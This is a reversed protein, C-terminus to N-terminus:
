VRATRGRRAPRKPTRPRRGRERQEQMRAEFGDLDVDRGREGAIERTLDIPFGLTDHLFFADDGSVDGPAVCATSCARRRAAAHARFAEEERECSRACSTTRAARGRSVRQGDTAVVVDIM